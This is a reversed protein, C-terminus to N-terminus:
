SYNRSEQTGTIHTYPQEARLRSLRLKINTCKCKLGKRLVANRESLHTLEEREKEPTINVSVGKGLHHKIRLDKKIDKIKRKNFAIERLIDFDQAFRDRYVFTEKENSFKMDFTKGDLFFRAHETEGRGVSCAGFDKLGLDVGVEVGPSEKSCAKETVQFPLNLILNRGEMSITPYLPIGGEGVILKEIRGNYVHEFERGNM